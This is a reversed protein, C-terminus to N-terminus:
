AEAKKIANNATEIAHQLPANITTNSLLKISAIQKLAELLEPAASILKANADNEEDIGFEYPLQCISTGLVHIHTDNSQELGKVISWNGKTHKM